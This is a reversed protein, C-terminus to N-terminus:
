SALSEVYGPSNIRISLIESTTVSLGEEPKCFILRMGCGIFGRKMVGRGSTSGQLQIKSRDAFLAPNGSILVEDGEVYEIRYLRSRTEIDIVAGPRLTEIFLREVQEAM